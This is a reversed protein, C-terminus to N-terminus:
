ESDTNSTLRSAARSFPVNVEGRNVNWAADVLEDLQRDTLKGPEVQDAKGEAELRAAHEETDGILVRWEDETLVPSILCTRLMAGYFTDSNIGPADGRVFSGDAEFRPPHAAILKRWQPKPLARFRFEYSAAKMQEELDLIKQRLEGSGNGSFKQSPRDALKKLERDAAEHDAVLDARLCVPVSREPLRAGALLDTFSPKAAVVKRPRATM